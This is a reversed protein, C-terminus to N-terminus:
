EADSRGLVMKAAVRERESRASLGALEDGSRAENARALVERVSDFRYTIGFLRTTLKM